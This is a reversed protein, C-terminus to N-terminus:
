SSPSLVDQVIISRHEGKLIFPLLFKGLYNGNNFYNSSILSATIVKGRNVLSYGALATNYMIFISTRQTYM